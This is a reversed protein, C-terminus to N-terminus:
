KKKVNFAKEIAEEEKEIKVQEKEIKSVIKLLHGEIREIKYDMSFMIRLSWMIAGLTGFLISIIAIEMDTAM